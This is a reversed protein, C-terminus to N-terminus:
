KALEKYAPFFEQMIKDYTLQLDVAKSNNEVEENAQVLFKNNSEM